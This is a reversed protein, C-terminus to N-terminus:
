FYRSGFGGNKPHPLLPVVGKKVWENIQWGDTTPEACRLQGLDILNIVERIAEQTVNENLLGRNEWAKEITNRLETMM